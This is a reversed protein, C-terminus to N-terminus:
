QIYIYIIYTNRYQKIGIGITFCLAYIIHWMAVYYLINYCLLIVPTIDYDHCNIKDDIDYINYYRSWVFYTKSKAKKRNQKAIQSNVAM